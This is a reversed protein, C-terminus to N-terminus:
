LPQFPEAQNKLYRAIRRGMRRGELDDYNWHVGNFVRSLGNEEAAQNFNEFRVPVLPRPTDPTFPDFGQGNYEDSVFTFPTETGFFFNLLEFMSAGFTAHGSPYAPFPPTPRIDDQTNIVSVGVPAWDAEVVTQPIGDERRIGTVPRWYNYFYKSDWAAIGSDAQAVQIMALFRALELASFKGKSVAVQSAIQAYLRPPTGLLPVADYGWFNGIFTSAPTATSPIVDNDPSGGLSAVQNHANRYRATGPAPTPPSRFQDGSTLVFPTVGGWFAGLALNGGGVPDPEWEYLARGGDNVRGGSADNIGTAVRGFGGFNPEPDSSNDASRANLIADAAALGTARGNAIANASASIQAIDSALLSDLRATQAPYLTKLVRHAAYSVAASRNGNRPGIDNYPAFGGDLANLADFVAIQVMAFARSTRTPGGQQFPVVGTDPDPTHDIANTDLLVTHWFKVRDKANGLAPAADNTTLRDFVNQALAANSVKGLYADINAKSIKDAALSPATLSAVVAILSSATLIKTRRM